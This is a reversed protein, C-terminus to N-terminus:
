GSHRTAQRDLVLPMALIFLVAGIMEGSTPSQHGILWDYFLTGSVVVAMMVVKKGLITGGADRDYAMQKAYLAIMIFVTLIVMWAWSRADIEAIVGFGGFLPVLLLGAFQTLGVWSFTVPVPLQSSGALRMAAENFAAALPFGLALWMWPELSLADGPKPYGAVCWAAFLFLGIGLANRKSMKDGWLFDLVAGPLVSFATLFGILAAGAGMQRCYIPVTIMYIAAMGFFITGIVPVAQGPPILPIGAHRRAFTMVIVECAGIFAAVVLAFGISGTLAVAFLGYIAFHFVKCLGETGAWIPWTGSSPGVKM